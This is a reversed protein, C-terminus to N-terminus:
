SISLGPDFGGVTVYKSVSAGPTAKMGLARANVTPLADVIALLSTVAAYEFVGGGGDVVCLQVIVSVKVLPTKVLPFLRRKVTPRPSCCEATVPLPEVM